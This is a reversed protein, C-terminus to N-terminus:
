SEITTEPRLHLTENLSVLRWGREGHELTTLSGLDVRIRHFRSLSLDLLRCVIAGIAFNHSVAVTTGHPHSEKIREIAKWARVQLEELSEGGPMRIKSPDKGWGQYIDPYQARMTGNTLGEAKGLNLEKLDDIPIVAAPGVKCIAEATQFARALPSSYIAQPDLHNLAHAIEQAQRLGVPSLGVSNQGQFRGGQNWPTEGHRVLVIRM